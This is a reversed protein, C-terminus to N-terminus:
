FFLTFLCTQSPIFRFVAACSKDLEMMTRGNRGLGWFVVVLFYKLWMLFWIVIRNLKGTEAAIRANLAETASAVV